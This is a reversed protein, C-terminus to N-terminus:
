LGARKTTSRSASRADEYNASTNLFVLWADVLNGHGSTTVTWLSNVSTPNAPTPNSSISFDQVVRTPVSLGLENATFLQDVDIIQLGDAEAAAARTASIGFGDPGDFVVAIADARGAALLACLAALVGIRVGHIGM